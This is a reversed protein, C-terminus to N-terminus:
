KKLVKVPSWASYYTTPLVKKYARIRVYYKKGKSIGKIRSGLKIIKAKTFKKNKSYQLQYGTAKSIKSWSVKMNTNKYRKLKTIKPTGVRYITRVPSANGTYKNSGSKSYCVIKYQYKAGNTSAKKDTYSLTNPSTITKIKSYVGNNKSRYIYYGNIKGSPKKWKVVIGSDTNTLSPMNTAAMEIKYTKLFTGTYNGKCTVMVIATGPNINGRYEVNYNSTSFYKGTKKNKLKVSPKRATQNYIYKDNSIILEYYSNTIIAPKIVFEKKVVGNFEGHGEIYIEGNGANINNKYSVLYDIGSILKKNHYTVSVAPVKKNGDYEYSQESITILAKSIDIYKPEDKGSDDGSDDSGSGSDNTDTTFAKIRCNGGSYEYDDTTDGLDIWGYADKYVYSQDEKIGAVAKYWSYKGFGETEVWTPKDNPAKQKIVVAFKEDKNLKVAKDLKVTHYGAFSAYYDKDAVLTGSEPNDNKVNKYVKVDCDYGTDSTYFGVAELDQKSTTTFVNAEKEVNLSYQQGFQGDYQYNYDYNDAYAIDFFYVDQFSLAGDYYSIWFYGDKSYQTGWSNKCLWAGDNEPTTGFNDKSYNDDWGVITIAHNIKNVKNPNYVAVRKTQYWPNSVNCYSVSDYYSSAGAGYEMIAEKVEDRDGSNIRIYNELHYADKSYAYEDSLTANKDSTIESYKADDENVLGIWNALAGGAIKQNGGVDLYNKTSDTSSFTYFEDGTTGGLPDDVHNGSAFYALQRESLDVNFDALGKKVINAEAAACVSFAWCIGYPTQNKVSTIYPSEYSSPIQEDALNVASMGDSDSVSSVQKGTQRYANIPTSIKQESSNDDQDNDSIENVNDNYDAMANTVNFGFASMSLSVATILALIRKRM